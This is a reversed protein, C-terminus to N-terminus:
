MMGPPNAAVLRNYFAASALAAVPISVFLGLGLPILSVLVMVLIVLELILLSLKYGKMMAWSAKVAAVGDLDRDMVLFLAQSLGLGAVIGPIVLLILGITVLVASIVTAVVLPVVKGIGSFLVGIPAEEGRIIKLLGLGLGGGLVVNIVNFVLQGLGSLPRYGEGAGGDGGTLIRVALGLCSIIVVFVILLVYTPVVRSKFTEWGQRLSGMAIDGTANAMPVPMESM